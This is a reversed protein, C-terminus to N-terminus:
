LALLLVFMSQVLRQSLDRCQLLLDVRDLRRIDVSLRKRRHLLSSLSHLLDMPLERDVNHVLCHVGAHRARDHIQHYQRNHLSSSLSCCASPSSIALAM